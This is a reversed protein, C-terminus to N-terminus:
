LRYHDTVIVNVENRLQLHNFTWYQNNRTFVTKPTYLLNNDTSMIDKVRQVYRGIRQSKLADM